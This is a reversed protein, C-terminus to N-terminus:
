ELKQSESASSFSNWHLREPKWKDKPKDTGTPYGVPIVCLPIVHVPLGVTETVANIRDEYPYAATWVAGLGMSEAALLINQTAASCDLMWMNETEGARAIEIDGCVIIAAGASALMKAYPLKESLRDIVPRDTVAIFQWPQRNIASPAAMGAKVLETLQERSVIQGNFSRVSKRQYITALTQNASTQLPSTAVSSAPQAPTRTFESASPKKTNELGNGNQAIRTPSMLLIIVAIALLLNIVEQIKMHHIERAEIKDEHGGIGTRLLEVIQGSPCFYNCWPRRVFVSIILFGIALTIVTISASKLLFASFPEISNLNVKVGVVLLFTIVMLISPRLRRFFAGRAGAMDLKKSCLGGALEQAAGYPCYWTCYWTKGTFLPIMFALAMVVTLFLQTALPIGNLSWAYLLELSVFRGLVFGPIILAMFLVVIRHKALGLRGYCALLSLVLFFWALVEFCIASYDIAKRAVELELHKALRLKVSEITARSTMTARSVADVDLSVAESALHGDWSNFFSLGELRKVFGPTEQNPQLTIGTIKQDKDIGILIPLWSGYGTIQRAVPQTHVLRGIEYGSADFVIAEDETLQKLSSAGKFLKQADEVAFLVQQEKDVLPVLSYGLFRGERATVAFLMTVLFFVVYLKGTFNQLKM